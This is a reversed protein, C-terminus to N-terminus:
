SPYVGLFRWILPSWFKKMLAHALCVVLFKLYGLQICLSSYLFKTARSALHVLNCATFASTLCVALITKTVGSALRVLFKLLKIRTPPVFDSAHCVVFISILVKMFDYAEFLKTSIMTTRLMLTRLQFDITANPFNKM